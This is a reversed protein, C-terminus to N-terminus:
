TTSRRAASPSMPWEVARVTGFLCAETRSLWRPSALAMRASARMIRSSGKARILTMPKTDCVPCNIELLATWVRVQGTAFSGEGSRKLDNEFLDNEFRRIGIAVVNRSDRGFSSAEISETDSPPVNALPETHEEGSDLDRFHIEIPTGESSTATCLRRGDESISLFKGGIKQEVAMAKHAGLDIKWLRVWEEQNDSAGATIARTGDRSFACVTGDLPLPEGIRTHSRTDWVTVKGDVCGTLITAGDMSFQTASVESDHKLSALTGPGPNLNCVQVQDKHAILILPERQSFSREDPLCPHSGYNYGTTNCEVGSLLLKGSWTEWVQAETEYGWTTVVFKTGDTNFRVRELPPTEGRDNTHSSPETVPLIWNRQSLLSFLRTAAYRNDPDTRCARALFALAESTKNQDLLESARLFDSQSLARKTKKTEEEAKAKQENATQEAKFARKAEEEAQGKQREAKLFQWGAVVALGLAVILGVVAARTFRRQAAAAKTQEGAIREADRLRREQEEKEAAERRRQEEAEEARRKDDAAVSNRIFALDAPEFDREARTQMYSRAISLERGALFGREDAGFATRAQTLRDRWLLFERDEALWDSFPPQRLLAEHAVEIVEADQRRDRILLRQEAFRDILPRAEDPIKNRPAVRRM